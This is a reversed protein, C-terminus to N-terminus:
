ASDQVTDPAPQLMCVYPQPWQLHARDLAIASAQRRSSPRLRSETESSSGLFFAPFGAQRITAPRFGSFESCHWEIQYFFPRMGVHLAGGRLNNNPFIAGTRPPAFSRPWPTTRKRFLSQSQAFSRSRKITPVIVFDNTLLTQNEANLEPARGRIQLTWDTM